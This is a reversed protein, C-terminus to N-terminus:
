LLERELGTENSPLKKQMLDKLPSATKRESFWKVLEDFSVDGSGDEDMEAMAADLEHESMAAGMKEAMRAVEGRDLSGGGDADIEDFLTRLASRDSM